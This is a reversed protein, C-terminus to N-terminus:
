ATLDNDNEHVSPNLQGNPNTKSGIYGGNPKSPKTNQNNNNSSSTAKQKNQQKVSAQKSTSQQSPSSTYKSYSNSSQSQNSQNLTSNNLDNLPNDENGQFLEGISLNPADFRIFSAGVSGCLMAVIGVVLVLFLKSNTSPNM